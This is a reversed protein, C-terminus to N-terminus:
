ITFRILEGKDVKEKRLAVLNGPGRNIGSDDSMMHGASKIASLIEHRLRLDVSPNGLIRDLLPKPIRYTKM